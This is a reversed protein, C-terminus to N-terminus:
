KVSPRHRKRYDSPTVNLIKRYVKTFYNGCSFGCEAAIQEITLDTNLLLQMGHELRIRTLYEMPTIGQERSFQRCLHSYSVGLSESMDELNIQESYHMKMWEIAAAVYSSLQRDSPAEVYRLLSILFRYLWENNMYRILPSKSRLTDYLELFQNIPPSDLAIEVVPGSLERIRKYFPAAAPGSFHIYFFTWSNDPKNDSSFYYKSDEPFTIFFAKGRSMKHKVGDAEYIGYGDLTYQFLYGQYDRTLNNFYYEESTRQELGLDNICLSENSIYDANLFGYHGTAWSMLFNGREIM